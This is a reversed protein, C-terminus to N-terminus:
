LKLHNTINQEAVEDEQNEKKLQENEQKLEMNESKLEINENWLEHIYARMEIFKEKIKRFFSFGTYINLEEDDIGAKLDQEIEDMNGSKSSKEAKLTSIDEKLEKTTEREDKLDKEYTKLEEDMFKLFPVYEQPPNKGEKGFKMYTPTLANMLEKKETGLKKLLQEKKELRDAKEKLEKQLRLFEQYIEQLNAKKLEKKLKNIAIYDAQTYVKQEGLEELEKNKAKLENRLESIEKRLESVTLKLEPSKRQEMIADYNQRLERHNARVATSGVKGREMGLLEAVETQLESLDKRRILQRRWNQRSNKYTVFNLHAHYNYKVTEKGDAGKFVKGEDRHIAIRTCLINFKREIHKAVKRADKMSHNENLNVVAEWLSNELKPKRGGKREAKLIEDAFVEADTKGCNWYENEKRLEKPLLYEAEFERLTEEASNSKTKQFNVSSLAM